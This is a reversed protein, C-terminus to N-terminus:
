RSDERRLAAFGLLCVFGAALAGASAPEPM